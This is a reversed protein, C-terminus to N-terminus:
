WSIWLNQPHVHHPTGQKDNAGFDSGAEGKLEEGKYKGKIITKEVEKKRGKEKGKYPPPCGWAEMDKRM